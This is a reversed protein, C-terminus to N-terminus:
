SFNDNINFEIFFFTYFIKDINSGRINLVLFAHYQTAVELFWIKGVNKKANSKQFHNFIKLFLLTQRLNPKTPIHLNSIRSYGNEFARESGASSFQRKSKIFLKM